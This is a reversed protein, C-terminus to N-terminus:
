RVRDLIMDAWALSHSQPKRAMNELYGHSGGGGDRKSSRINMYSSYCLMGPLSSPLCFVNYGIQILFFFDILNLCRMLRRVQKDGLKLKYLWKCISKVCQGVMERPLHLLCLCLGQIESCQM